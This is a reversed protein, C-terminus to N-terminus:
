PLEFAFPEVQQISAFDAANATVATAGISRATLAILVDNIHSGQSPEWVPPYTGSNEHAVPGGSQRFGPM